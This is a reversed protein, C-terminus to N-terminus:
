HARKWLPGAGIVSRALRRFVVRSSSAPISAPSPTAVSGARKAGSASSKGERKCLDVADHVVASAPVRDLHLLQYVSMRLLDLVEVDFAGVSRQGAWACVHDLAARWRLTGLVIESALARDREDALGHRRQDLATAVDVQRAHVDRLTLYAASRAPSLM